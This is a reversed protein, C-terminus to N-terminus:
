PDRLLERHLALTAHDDHEVLELLDDRKVWCQRSDQARNDLGLLLHCVDKQAAPAM